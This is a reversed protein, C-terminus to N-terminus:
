KLERIKSQSSTLWSLDAPGEKASLYYLEDDKDAFEDYQAFCFLKDERSSDGSHLKVYQFSCYIFFFFIIALLNRSGVTLVLKEKM